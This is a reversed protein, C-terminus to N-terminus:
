GLGSRGGTVLAVKGKLDMNSDKAVDNADMGDPCNQSFAISSCIAVISLLDSHSALM